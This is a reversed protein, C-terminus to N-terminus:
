YSIQDAAHLLPIFSEPNKRNIRIHNRHLSEQLPKKVAAFARFLDRRGKIVMTQSNHVLYTRAIAVYRDGANETGPRDIIKTYKRYLVSGGKYLVEAYGSLLATSDDPIRVFHHPKQAFTFSFSDVREKNLRLLGESGYPTLLGDTLLDVKLKLGEFAKGGIFVTGNLYERTFLFPDGSIGPHSNYWPRGNYIVQLDTLSDPDPSRHTGSMAKGSSSLTVLILLLLASRIM